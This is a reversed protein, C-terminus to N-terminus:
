DFGQLGGIATFSCAMILWLVMLLGVLIVTGTVSSGGAPAPLPLGMVRRALPRISVSWIAGAGLCAVLLPALIIASLPVIFPLTALMNPISGPPGVALALPAILLTVIYTWFGM